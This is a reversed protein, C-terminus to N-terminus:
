DTPANNELKMRVNKVDEVSGTLCRDVDSLVGMAYSYAGERMDRAWAQAQQTLTDCDSKTANMMVDCDNITNIRLEEARQTAEKTINSESILQEAHLRADEVISNAKAQANAIIEEAKAQADAVTSNAEADARAKKDAAWSKASDIIKNRDATIKKASEFEPPLSKKVEDSLEIIKEGDVIRKHFLRLNFGGDVTEIIEDLLEEIHM